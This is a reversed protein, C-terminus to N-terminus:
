AEAHFLSLLINNNAWNANHCFTMRPYDRRILDYQYGGIFVPEALGAGAFAELTWDLIRRGGVTAYCKPQHDTMAKLRSGRGAGIIIARVALRGYPGCRPGDKKESGRRRRCRM